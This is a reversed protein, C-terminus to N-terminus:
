IPVKTKEALSVKKVWTESELEPISLNCDIFISDNM